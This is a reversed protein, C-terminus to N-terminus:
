NLPPMDTSFWFPLICWQAPVRTITSHRAAQRARAALWGATETLRVM